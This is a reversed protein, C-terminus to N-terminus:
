KKIDPFDLTVECSKEKESENYNFKLNIGCKDCTQKIFHYGVNDLSYEEDSTDDFVAKIPSPDKFKEAHGRITVFNKNEGSFSVSLKAGYIFIRSFTLIVGIIVRRQLSSMVEPVSSNWRVEVQTKQFYNKVISVVERTKNEADDDYILGYAIRYAHLRAMSQKSSEEILDIAQNKIEIAGPDHSEKTDSLVFDIGNAVASIPGAMDHTFKTLLLEAMRLESIESTKKNKKKRLM